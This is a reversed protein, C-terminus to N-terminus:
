FRRYEDGLFVSMSLSAKAEYTLDLAASRGAHTEVYREVELSHNTQLQMSHESNNSRTTMLNDDFHMGTTSYTEALREDLMSSVNLDCKSRWSLSM